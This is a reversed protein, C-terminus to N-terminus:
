LKDTFGFRRPNRIPLDILKFTKARVLVSSIFAIKRISEAILSCGAHIAIANIFSTFIVALTGDIVAPPETLHVDVFTSWIWTLVISHADAPNVGVSALTLCSVTADIALEVDIIARGCWTLIAADTHVTQTRVTALARLTISSSVTLISNIPAYSLWAFPATCADIRECTVPTEALRCVISTAACSTCTMILTM